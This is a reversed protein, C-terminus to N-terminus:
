EEVESETIKGGCKFCRKVSGQYLAVDETAGDPNNDSDFILCRRIHEVLYYKDVFGCKKCFLRVM